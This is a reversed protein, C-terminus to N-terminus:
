STVIDKFVKKGSNGVTPDSRRLAMGLMTQRLSLRNPRHRLIRRIMPLKVLHRRHPNTSRLRALSAPQPQDLCPHTERDLKQAARRVGFMAASRSRPSGFAPVPSSRGCRPDPMAAMQSSPSSSRSVGDFRGCCRKSGEYFIANMVECIDVSRTPRWAQGPPHVAQGVRMRCRDSRERLSARSSRRFSSSGKDM